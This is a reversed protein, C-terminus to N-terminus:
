EAAQILASSCGEEGAYVDDEVIKSCVPPDPRTQDPRTQCVQRVAGRVITFWGQRRAGKALSTKENM